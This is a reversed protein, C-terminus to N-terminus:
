QSSRMSSYRSGGTQRNSGEKPARARTGRIRRLLTEFSGAASGASFSKRFRSHPRGELAISIAPLYVENALHLHELCQGVSWAEPRPRWNLQEPSLGECVGPGASRSRSVRFDPTAGLRCVLYRGAYVCRLIDDSLGV